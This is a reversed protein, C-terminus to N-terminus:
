YVYIPYRVTHTTRDSAIFQAQVQGCSTPNGKTSIGPSTFKNGTSTSGSYSYTASEPSFPGNGQSTFAYLKVQTNTRVFTFFTSNGCSSDATLRYNTTVTPCDQCNTTAQAAENQQPLLAAATGLIIFTMGARTLRQSLTM